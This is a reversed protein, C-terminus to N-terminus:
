KIKAFWVDYINEIKKKELIKKSKALIAVIPFRMGWLNISTTEFNNFVDLYVLGISM